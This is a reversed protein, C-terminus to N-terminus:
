RNVETSIDGLPRNFTYDFPEKILSRGVIPASNTLATFPLIALSGALGVALAAVGAPRLILADVLVLEGPPTDEDLDVDDFSRCRQNFEPTGNQSFPAPPGQAFASGVIVFLFAPVALLSLIKKM